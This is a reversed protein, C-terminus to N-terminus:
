GFGNQGYFCAFGLQEAHRTPMNDSPVLLVQYTSLVDLPSM